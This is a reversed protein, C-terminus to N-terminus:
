KCILIGAYTLISYTLAAAEERLANEKPEIASVPSFLLNVTNGFANKQSMGLLWVSSESWDDFRLLADDAKAAADPGALQSQYFKLNLRSALRAMVTILQEHDVADLPHFLGNEDGKVLGQTYLANVYPAYWADASVDSFASQGDDTLKYNMAQALLACLEARTLSSYPHYLGDGCGKLISYTKLTNIEAAFNSKSVDVFSRSAYDTIKSNNAADAPTVSVWNGDGDGQSLKAEPPIAELLEAFAGRYDESTATNLDIYWKWSGLILRLCGSNELKPDAGCLLYSVNAANEDSVLLHPIVGIQDASSGEPSFYRFATIKMADGDSFLDPSFTDKDLIIQAVGKGYTRGGIIIGDTYDRIASLFIESASATWRSSLAIVPQLTRADDSSVFRYYQSRDRMYVMDGKGLFVGLSNTAATVDGGLNSRLDVVWNTANDRYTDVGSSFYGYTENGFTGCYIYGIHGNVLDTTTAPIIIEARTLTFDKQTGDAKRVTITVQTGADGKILASGTEADYGALSQGGAATILDGSALGAEEAPSGKFVGTILLGGDASVLSVGIGVTKGDSMSAKFAAYEEVDMYKTYPDGLADLMEEITPNELVSQPVEDVYYESLLEKAQDLTLASASTLLLTLVLLLTLIRASFKKM